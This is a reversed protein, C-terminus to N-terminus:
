IHTNHILHAQTSHPEFEFNHKVIIILKYRPRCTVRCVIESVSMCKCNLVTTM